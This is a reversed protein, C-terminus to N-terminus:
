DGASAKRRALPLDPLWHSMCRIHLLHEAGNRGPSGYLSFGEKKATRYLKLTAPAQDDNEQSPNSSNKPPEVEADTPEAQIGLEELLYDATELTSAYGPTALSCHTVIMVKEGKAARQAYRLYDKMLGPHVVGQEIRETGDGVYGCYLSDIMYIADIQEFYEASKLLERVAGFGASFSTIALKGWETDDAFDPQKRLEALAADLLKGFLQRDKSFPVRYASSLGGYKVSVVVCNMGAQRVSERVMRPSSHFDFLLDVTKGRHQYDAPIWLTHRSDNLLEFSRDTEPLTAPGAAFSASVFTAQVLLHLCICAARRM